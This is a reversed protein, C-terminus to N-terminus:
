QIVLGSLVYRSLTAAPESELPKQIDNASVRVTRELVRIGAQGGPWPARGEALEAAVDRMGVEIPEHEVAIKRGVVSETNGAARM